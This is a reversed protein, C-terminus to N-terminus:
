HCQNEDLVVLTELINGYVMQSYVDITDASDMSAADSAMVVTLTDKAEGAAAATESTGGTESNNGGGGCGTLSCVAMAAALLLAAIRKTM